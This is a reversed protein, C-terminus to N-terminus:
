YMEHIDCKSYVPSYACLKEEESRIKLEEKLKVKRKHLESAHTKLKPSLCRKSIRLLTEILRLESRLSTACRYSDSNSHSSFIQPNLAAM